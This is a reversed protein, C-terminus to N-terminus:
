GNEMVGVRVLVMTLSFFISKNIGTGRWILGAFIWQMGVIGSTHDKGKYLM